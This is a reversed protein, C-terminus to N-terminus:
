PSRAAPLAASGATATITYNGAAQLFLSPFGGHRPVPRSVPPRPSSSARGTTVAMNVVAGSVLNNYADEIKVDAAAVASGAISTGPSTTWIVQSPAAAIVTFSEDHGDLRHPRQRRRSRTAARPTL